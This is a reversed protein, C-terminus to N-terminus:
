KDEWTSLDVIKRVRDFAEQPDDFPGEEEYKVALNNIDTLRRRLDSNETRLDHKKIKSKVADSKKSSTRRREDIFTVIVAIPSLLAISLLVFPLLWYMIVDNEIVGM